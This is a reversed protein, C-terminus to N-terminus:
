TCKNNQIKNADQAASVACRGAAGGAASTNIDVNVARGWTILLLWNAVAWGVRVRRGDGITNGVRVAVAVKGGPTVGVM